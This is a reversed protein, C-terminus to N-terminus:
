NLIIVVHIKCSLDFVDPLDLLKVCFITLMTKGAVDDEFRVLLVWTGRADGQTVVERLREVEVDSLTDSHVKVEISSCVFLAIAKEVLEGRPANCWALVCM